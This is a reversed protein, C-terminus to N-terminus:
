CYCYCYYYYSSSSSSSSCYCCYRYYYYYYYYHYRSSGRENSQDGPRQKRSLTEPGVEELGTQVASPLGATRGVSRTYIRGPGSHAADAFRRAKALHNRLSTTDAQLAIAQSENYLRLKDRSEFVAEAEMISM